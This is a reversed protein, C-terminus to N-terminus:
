WYGMRERGQQPQKADGCGVVAAELFQVVCSTWEKLWRAEGGLSVSGHAVKRKSARIENAGVCKALWIAREIPVDKIACQDLLVRNKIGHPISRSLRKLPVSPMALDRLWSERKTDPLTVRPPPKFTPPADVIGLKRRENLMQSFLSNM